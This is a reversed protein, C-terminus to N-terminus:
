SSHARFNLPRRESLLFPGVKLLIHMFVNGLSLVSTWPPNALWDATTPERGQAPALSATAEFRIPTLGSQIATGTAGVVRLGKETWASAPARGGTVTAALDFWASM